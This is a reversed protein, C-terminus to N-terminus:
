LPGSKSDNQDKENSEIEIRKYDEPISYSLADFPATYLEKIEFLASQLWGNNSDITLKAMVINENLKEMTYTSDVGKIFDQSSFRISDIMSILDNNFESTSSIYAYLSDRLPLEDVIWEEITIKNKKTSIITTRKKTRFGNTKELNENLRRDIIPTTDDGEFIDNTIKIFWKQKNNKHSKDDKRNKEINVSITDSDVNQETEEDSEVDWSMDALLTDLGHPTM